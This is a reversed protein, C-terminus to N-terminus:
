GGDRLACAMVSKSMDGQMSTGSMPEAKKAPEQKVTTTDAPKTKHGDDSACGFLALLAALPLAKLARNMNSTTM